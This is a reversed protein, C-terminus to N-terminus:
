VQDPSKKWSRNGGLKFFFAKNTALRSKKSDLANYFSFCIYPAQTAM